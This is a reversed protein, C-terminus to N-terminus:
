NTKNQHCTALTGTIMANVFAINVYILGDDM